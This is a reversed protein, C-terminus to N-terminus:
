QLQQKRFTDIVEDSHFDDTQLRKQLEQVKQMKNKKIELFHFINDACLNLNTYIIRKNTLVVFDLNQNKKLISYEIEETTELLLVIKYFFQEIKM